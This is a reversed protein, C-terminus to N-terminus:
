QLGAGDHLDEAPKRLESLGEDDPTPTPALPSGTPNREIEDYINMAESRFLAGVFSPLVWTLLFLLLFLFHADGWNVLAYVWSMVTGWDARLWTELADAPLPDTGSTIFTILATLPFVLLAVYTASHITTGVRMLSDAFREQAKPSRTAFTHKKIFPAFVYTFVYTKLVHPVLWLIVLLVALVEGVWLWFLVVRVGRPWSTMSLSLRTVVDVVVIYGLFGVMVKIRWPWSTLFTRLPARM